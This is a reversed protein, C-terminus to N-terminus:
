FRANKLTSRAAVGTAPLYTVAAVRSRVSVDDANDKAM